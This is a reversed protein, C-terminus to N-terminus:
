ICNLNSRLFTKPGSRGTGLAVRGMQAAVPSSNGRPKGPLLWPEEDGKM